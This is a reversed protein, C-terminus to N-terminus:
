KQAALAMLRILEVFAGDVESPPDTIVITSVGAEGVATLGVYAVLDASGDQFVTTLQVTDKAPGAVSVVSGNGFTCGAALASRLRALEADAEGVSPLTRVRQTGIFGDRDRVSVIGFTGTATTDADCPAVASSGEYDGTAAETARGQTLGESAWQTAAVFSSSPFTADPVVPMQEDIAEVPAGTRGTSGGGPLDTATTEPRVPDTGDRGFRELRAQALESLEGVQAPTLDPTTSGQGAVALYTLDRGHHAVAYWGGGGNDAAYRLVRPWTDTGEAPSVQTVTIPIGACARLDAVIRQAADSAAGATSGTFLAQTGSFGVDASGTIGEAVKPTGPFRPMCDVSDFESLGAATLGSAVGLARAWEGGTPLPGAVGDLLPGTTTTTPSPGAPVPGANGDPGGLVSLGFAVAVVGAAAAAVSWSLVRARRRAAGRAKVFRVDALPVADVDHSLTALSRRVLEDDAETWEQHPDRDAM